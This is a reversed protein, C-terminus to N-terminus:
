RHPQRRRVSLFAGFPSTTAPMLPEEANPSTARDMKPNALSRSDPSRIRDCAFFEAPSSSRARVYRISDWVQCCIGTVSGVNSPEDDYSVRISSHTINEMLGSCPRIRLYCVPQCVVQLTPANAGTIDLLGGPTFTETCGANVTGCLFQLNDLLRLPERSHRVPGQRTCDCWLWVVVIVSVCSVYSIRSSVTM